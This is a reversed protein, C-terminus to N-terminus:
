EGWGRWQSGSVNLDSKAIFLSSKDDTSFAPPVYYSGTTSTRALVDLGMSLADVMDDHKGSPFTQCEDMFPDLWPAVEPLFVRGGEILPLVANLRSVKDSAVRYPIVSVGSERKLEQILSQGSAKDEVYIGRLGRGRWENNLMIM